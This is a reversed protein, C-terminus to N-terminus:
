FNTLVQAVAGCTETMLLILTHLIQDSQAMKKCFGLLRQILRASVFFMGVVNLCITIKFMFKTTESFKPWNKEKKNWTSM